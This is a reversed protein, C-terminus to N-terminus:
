MGRGETDPSLSLSANGRGQDKTSHAMIELQASATLQKLDVRCM